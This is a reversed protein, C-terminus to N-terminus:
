KNSVKKNDKVIEVKTVNDIKKAITEQNSKFWSMGFAFVTVITLIFYIRFHAKSDDIVSTKFYSGVFLISTLLLWACGLIIALSYVPSSNLLVSVMTTTISVTLVINLFTAGLSEIKNDTKNMKDDIKEHKISLEDIKSNIDEYKEEAEKLKHEYYKLSLTRYNKELNRRIEPFNYKSKASEELSLGLEAYYDLEQNLRDITESVKQINNKLYKDNNQIELILDTSENIDKEWQSNLKQYQAQKYSQVKKDIFQTVDNIQSTKAM